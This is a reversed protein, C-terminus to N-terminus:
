GIYDRVRLPVGTEKAIKECEALEDETLTQRVVSFKVDSVHKRVRTAFLKIAELVGEGFVSHCIQQYREETPANLSISVADFADRYLPSSDCGLILDSQGNTNIRIKMEPYLSKVYLAIERAERLRCSPEGYGCFVIETYNNLNRKLIDALIEEKTPETDLWLEGYTGDAVSRVCFECANTCKNTVNVYLGCGVEYTITMNGRM